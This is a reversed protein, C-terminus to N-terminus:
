EKVIAMAAPLKIPMKSNNIYIRGNDIRTVTVIELDFRGAVRAVKDGVAYHKGCMDLIDSEVRAPVTSVRIETEMRVVVEDSYVSVNRVAWGEAVLAAKFKDSAGNIERMQIGVFKFRRTRGDKYYSVDNYCASIGREWALPFLERFIDQVKKM